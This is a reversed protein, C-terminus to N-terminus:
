VSICNTILSNISTQSTHRTTQNTEVHYNHSQNLVRQTDGEFRTLILNLSQYISRDFCLFAHPCHKSVVWDLCRWVGMGFLCDVGWAMGIHRGRTCPHIYARMLTKVAQNKLHFIQRIEISFWSFRKELIYFQFLVRETEAAFISVKAYVAMIGFTLVSREWLFNPM